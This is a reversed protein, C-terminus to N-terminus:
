SELQNNAPDSSRVGLRCCNLRDLTDDFDFYKYICRGVKQQADSTVDAPQVLFVHDVRRLNRSSPVAEHILGVSRKWVQDFLRKGPRYDFLRGPERDPNWVPLNEGFREAILGSWLYRWVSGLAGGILVLGVSIM